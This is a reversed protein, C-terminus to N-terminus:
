EGRVLAGDEVLGDVCARVDSPEVGEKRALARAADDDFRDRAAVVLDAVGAPLREVRLEPFRHPTPRPQAVVLAIEDCNEASFLARLGATAGASLREKAAAAADVVPTPLRVVRASPALAVADRPPAVFDARPGRRADAMARELASLGRVVLDQEEVARRALYAGFAPPLSAGRRAADHFEDSAFFAPAVGPGLPGEGAVRASLEFEASLNSLVQARRRGDPDAVIRVPDAALLIQRGEADLGAAPDGAGRSHFFRAAFAPDCQMRFLTRQVAAFSM